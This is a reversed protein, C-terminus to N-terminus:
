PREDENPAHGSVLWATATLSRPGDPAGSLFAARVAAEVRRRLEPDLGAVYGGVPGQGGLLPQWYDDFDAFDMRITVEDRAVEEFGAERWLSELGDPLALPHSFLRDRLAAADPDLSAASDWLLRQYVLGGRFDWGAAVGLGGARLVRRMERAAAAPDPLFNLVISAYAGAFTGTASDLAQADGTAFTVRACDQRARAFDLYPEAPDIGTIARDPHRAALAASLSGTGCGVDLLAGPTAPVSRLAIERALRATWRGIFREYAAGNSAAYGPAPPM